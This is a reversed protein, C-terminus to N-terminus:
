MLIVGLTLLMAVGGFSHMGIGSASSAASQSTTANGSSSTSSANVFGQNVQDWLACVSYDIVGADTSNIINIGTTQTANTYAPWDFINTSPNGNAAMSTWASLLIASIDREEATFNCTGNPNPLGVLDGFVYPIEATHAAQLLPVADQPVGQLWTCSSTHSFLYAWVPVGKAVARNLGRYSPCFYESDSIVKSIAFFPPYPTSSFKSLPYYQQVLSAASGFNDKLFTTYDAATTANPGGAAAYQGLAFLSGELSNSGFITPVRVGVQSPQAPVIEGDVYPAFQPTLIGGTGIAGDNGLGTSLLPATNFYTHMESISKSRLCNGDSLGCGIHQAFNSGLTQMTSNLLADRGGGSETIASNILTPAQPLTAVVFTNTAGASQGFLLVKKSDGGFAQINSQVWQLGLLIDQIGQNGRIGANALALFGLPGLRYNISVLIADKNAINCGDYLYFSSGGADEAGGYIWM